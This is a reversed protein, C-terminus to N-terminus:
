ADQATGIFIKEGRILRYVVTDRGEATFEAVTFRADRMRERFDAGYYRVHDYQGFHLDRDAETVVAPDEYSQGWGEILPVMAIFQGGPRLIRAIERMARVDDVHELVHSAIVVDYSAAPLGTAHIDLCLDASTDPYSSTTYSRPGAAVISSRVAGEPAFHLVDRGAFRLVGRQVALSFLRHRELSGCAPCRAGTRLPTGFGHFRGVHGCSSCTGEGARAHSLMAMKIQHAMGPLAAGLERITALKM